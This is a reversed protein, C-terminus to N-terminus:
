IFIWVYILQTPRDVLRSLSSKSAMQRGLGRTGLPVSQDMYKEAFQAGTSLQATSMIKIVKTIMIVIITIPCEIMQHDHDM